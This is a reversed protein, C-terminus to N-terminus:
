AAPQEAAQRESFKPAMHGNEIAEAIRVMDSCRNYCENANWPIGEAIMYDVAKNLCAGVRAGHHGANAPPAAPRVPAAPANQRAPHAAPVSTNHPTPGRRAPAPRAPPPIAPGTDGDDGEAAAEGVYTVSASDEHGRGGGEAVITFTNGKQGEFVDGCTPNELSYNWEEGAIELIVYDPKPANPKSFKSQLVDSKVTVRVPGLQKLASHYLTKAM